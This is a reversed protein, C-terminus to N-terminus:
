CIKQLEAEMEPENLSKRVYFIFGVTFHPSEKEIEAFAEDFAV